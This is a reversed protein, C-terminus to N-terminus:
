FESPSVIDSPVPEFIDELIPVSTNHFRFIDPGEGAEIQSQLSERYQQHSKKEYVITVNPHDKQYDSIIQNVNVASEWLGWYTLSVKGQNNIGPIFKCGSLILAFLIALSVKKLLFKM